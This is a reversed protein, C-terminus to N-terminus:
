KMNGRQRYYGRDQKQTDLGLHEKVGAPLEVM